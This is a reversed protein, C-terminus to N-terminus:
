VTWYHSLALSLGGCTFLLISYGVVFLPRCVVTGAEQMQGGFFCSSNFTAVFYQGRRLM